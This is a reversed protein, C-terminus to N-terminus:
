RDETEGEVEVSSLTITGSGARYVGFAVIKATAPADMFRRVMDDRGLLRLSPLLGSNRLVQAGEEEPKYAQVATVGFIRRPGGTRSIIPISDLVGPALRDHDWYGEIRIPRVPAVDGPFQAWAPVARMTSGVIGLAVLVCAV